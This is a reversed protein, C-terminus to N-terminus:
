NFGEFVSNEVIVVHGISKVDSYQIIIGKFTFKKKEKIIKTNEYESTLAHWDAAFYFCEYEDQLKVWSDLAGFFNGLHLKGSPRMGSLIRKKSM